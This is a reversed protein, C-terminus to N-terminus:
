YERWLVVGVSGEIHPSKQLPDYGAGLSFKVHKFNREIGIGVWSANNSFGGTAAVEWSPPVFTSTHHNKYSDRLVLSRLRVNHGEVDASWRGEVSDEFHYRPLSDIDDAPTVNIPEVDRYILTDVVEEITVVSRDKPRLRCHWLCILVVSLAVGLVIHIATKM